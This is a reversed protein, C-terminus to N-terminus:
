RTSEKRARRHRRLGPTAQRLGRGRQGDHAQRDRAPHQAAGQHGRGGTDLKAYITYQLLDEGKPTKTIQPGKIQFDCGPLVGEVLNQITNYSIEGDLTVVMEYIRCEGPQISESRLKMQEEDPEHMKQERSKARPPPREAASSSASGPVQQREKEKRDAVEQLSQELKLIKLSVDCHCVEFTNEDTIEKMENTLDIMSQLRTEMGGKFTTDEEHEPEQTPLSKHSKGAIIASIREANLKEHKRVLMTMTGKRLLQCGDKDSLDHMNIEANVARDDKDKKILALDEQVLIMPFKTLYEMLNEHSTFGGAVLSKLDYKEAKNPSETEQQGEKNHDEHAEETPTTKEEEKDATAGSWDPAEPVLQCGDTAPAESALGGQQVLNWPDGQHDDARGPASDEPKVM